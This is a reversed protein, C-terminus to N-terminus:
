CYIFQKLLNSLFLFFLLHKYIMHVYNYVSIHYFYYTEM